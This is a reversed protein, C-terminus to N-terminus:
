WVICKCGIKRDDLQIWCNVDYKKWTKKEGLSAFAKSDAAQRVLRGGAQLTTPYQHPICETCFPASHPGLPMGNRWTRASAGGSQTLRSGADEQMAVLARAEPSSTSVEPFDFESTKDGMGQLWQKGWRVLRRKCHLRLLAKMPREVLSPYVWSISRCM